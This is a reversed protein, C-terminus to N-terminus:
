VTSGSDCSLRPFTLASLGIRVQESGSNNGESPSGAVLGEEDMDEESALSLPEERAERAERSPASCPTAPHPLASPLTVPDEGDRGDRLFQRFSQISANDLLRSVSALDETPKEKDVKPHFEDEADGETGDDDGHHDESSPREEDIVLGEDEDDEEHKSPTDSPARLPTSADVPQPGSGSPPTGPGTHHLGGPGGGGPGRHRQSWFQPHQHKVHRERNSSLTFRASCHECVHPRETRYRRQKQKPMLVGNKMVMKSSSSGGSSVSSQQQLHSESASSRESKPSAAPCAVICDAEPPVALSSVPSEAPSAATSLFPPRQLLRMPEMVLGGVPGLQGLQLSRLLGPYYSFPLAGPLGNPTAGLTAGLGPALGSALGPALGQYPNVYLPFPLAAGAGAATAAAEPSQLPGPAAHNNHLLPHSTPTVAASSSEKPVPKRSLDQPQEDEEEEEEEEDAQVEDQDLDEDAPPSPPRKKSLDLPSQRGPDDQDDLQDDAGQESAGREDREEDESASTMTAVDLSHRRLTADEAGAEAFLSRKVTHQDPDNGPDESPHYIISSKVEDRSCKSHRNRLHRECNAKTTFAFRCLACEFPRAGNHTRMHRQLAVKDLAAHPCMNCRYGDAGPTAM